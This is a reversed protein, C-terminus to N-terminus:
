TACCLTNRILDRVIMFKTVDLAPALCSSKNLSSLDTQQVLEHKAAAKPTVLNSIDVIRNQDYKLTSRLDSKSTLCVLRQVGRLDVQM